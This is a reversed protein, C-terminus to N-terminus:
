RPTRKLPHATTFRPAEEGATIFWVSRVNLASGDPAQLPGDIMYQTGYPSTGIKTVENKLAHLILSDSLDRWNAPNFGFRMFFAAKSKGHPHTTSLLYRVIKEPQVVARNANPLIM